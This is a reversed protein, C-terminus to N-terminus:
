RKKNKSLNLNSPKFMGTKSDFHKDTCIKNVNNKISTLLGNVEIYFSKTQDELDDM